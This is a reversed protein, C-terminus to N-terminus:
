AAGRAHGFLEVLEAHRWSEGSATACSQVWLLASELDGVIRSPNNTSRLLSVTGLFARTAVGALGPVLVVHCAGLSFLNAQYIKKIEERVEEPFSPTGSVIINVLVVGDQHIARRARGVRTVARIQSVTPADRWVAVIVNRESVIRCTPEELEVTATM